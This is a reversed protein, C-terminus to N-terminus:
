VVTENCGMTPKMVKKRWLVLFCRSDLIYGCFLAPVFHPLASLNSEGHYFWVGIPQMAVCLDHRTYAANCRLCAACFVESCMLREQASSMAVYAYLVHMIGVSLWRHLRLVWCDLM